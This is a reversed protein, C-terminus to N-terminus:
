RNVPFHSNYIEKVLYQIAYAYAEDSDESLRINIKRFLMDVAHFVEHTLYGLSEATKNLKKLRLITQNSDLMLTKGEGNLELLVKDDEQLVIGYKSDLYKLIEEMTSGICVLVDFPYVQYSIKFIKHNM